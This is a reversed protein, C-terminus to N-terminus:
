QQSRDLEERIPEWIDAVGLKQSWESVRDTNVEERSVRLMSRIDDLHKAQSSLSYYKLKILVLYDAPPVCISLNIRIDDAVGADIVLDLDLTARPEGYYMSGVSGGVFVPIRLQVFAQFIDLLGPDFAGM